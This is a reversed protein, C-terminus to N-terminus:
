LQRPFRLENHFIRTCSDSHLPARSYPFPIPYQRERSFCDQLYVYLRAEFSCPHRLRQHYCSKDTKSLRLINEHVFVLTCHIRCNISIQTKTQDYCPTTM